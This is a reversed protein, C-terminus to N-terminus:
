SPFLSLDKMKMNKFIERPYRKRKREKKKKNKRKIKM